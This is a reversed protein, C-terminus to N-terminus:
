VCPDIMVGVGLSNLLNSSSSQTANIAVALWLSNIAKGKQAGEPLHVFSCLWPLFFSLFSSFFVDMWGGM